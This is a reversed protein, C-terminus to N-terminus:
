RLVRVRALHLISRKEIRVRVWRAEVPAFEALWTGFVGERRAVVKWKQQDDSTEVVLPTARETCCDKRNVVRVASFRLKAGLDLEVWPNTEEQTHFFYDPSESCDQDPSHCGGYLSSTRWAKGISLDRSEEARDRAKTVVVFGVVLLICVLGVRLIRQIWLAEVIRRSIELEAILAQAVSRLGSVLHSREEAALVAFDRFMLADVANQLQAVAELSGAAKLLVSPTVANWTSSQASPPVDSNANLAQLSWLISQRYLDCLIPEVSGEFPESSESTRRAVAAALRARRLFEAAEGGLPRVLRAQDGRWFWHWARRL